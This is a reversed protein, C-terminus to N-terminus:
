GGGGNGNGGGGGGKAFAHTLPVTDVAATAFVGVLLQLISRRPRTRDPMDTSARNILPHDAANSAGTTCWGEACAKADRRLSALRGFDRCRLIATPLCVIGLQSTALARLSAPKLSQGTTRVAPNSIVGRHGSRTCHPQIASGRIWGPNRCRWVSLLRPAMPCRVLAPVSLSPTPRRCPMEGAM